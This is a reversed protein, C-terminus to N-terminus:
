YPMEVERRTADKMDADIWWHRNFSTIPDGLKLESLPGSNVVARTGREVLVM